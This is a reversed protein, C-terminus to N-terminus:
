SSEGLPAHWFRHSPRWGLRALSALVRDAKGTSVDHVVNGYLPLGLATAHDAAARSLATTAQRVDVVSEVLSDVLEVFDEGTVEDRAECLLTVHGAPVDGNWVLLSVRDPQSLLNEAVALADAVPQGTERCAAEFATVLWDRILGDHGADARTVDLAGAPHADVDLRIYTIQRRWPEPLVVEPALRLLAATAGPHRRALESTFAALLDADETLAQESHEVLVQRRGTLPDTYSDAVYSLGRFDGLLGSERAWALYGSVVPASM